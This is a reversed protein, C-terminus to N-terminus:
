KCKPLMTLFTGRIAISIFGSVASRKGLRSFKFGDFQKETTVQRFGILILFGVIM